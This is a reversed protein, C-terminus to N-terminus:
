SDYAVPGVTQVNLRELIGAIESLYRGHVMVYHCSPLGHLFRRADPIRITASSRCAGSGAGVITGPWVSFSRLDKAFQGLTVEAGLSFVVELAVGRGLDHYHRLGYPAPQCGHGALRLPVVCHELSTTQGALDVEGVNGMFAPKHAVGELLLESLM